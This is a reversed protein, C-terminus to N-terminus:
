VEVYLQASIKPRLLEQLTGIYTDLIMWLTKKNEKVKRLQWLHM